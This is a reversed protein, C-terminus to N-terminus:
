VIGRLLGSGDPCTATTLPAILLLLATLQAQPVGVIKALISAPLTKRCVGLIRASIDVFCATETFPGRWWRSWRRITRHPVGTLEFMARATCVSLAIVSAVIVAVGVYVRRGLFRVSPPTARRRCGERSCCLSCRRQYVDESVVAMVGGRPKRWYDGRDLRGGCRRCPIKGAAAVIAEDVATLRDFFERLLVIHAFM